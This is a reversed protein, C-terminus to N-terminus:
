LRCWSQHVILILDCNMKEKSTKIHYKANKYSFLAISSNQKYIKKKIIENFRPYGFQYLPFTIEKSTKKKKQILYVNIEYM